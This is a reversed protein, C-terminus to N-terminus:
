FFFDYDLIGICVHTYHSTVHICRLDLVHNYSQVTQLWLSQCLGIQSRRLLYLWKYTAEVALSYCLQWICRIIVSAFWLNALLYVSWALVKDCVLRQHFQAQSFGGTWRHVIKERGGGSVFIAHHSIWGLLILKWCYRTIQFDLCIARHLRSWESAILIRFSTM